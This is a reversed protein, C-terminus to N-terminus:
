EPLSGYRLVMGVVQARDLTELKYFINSWYKALTKQAISLKESIQLDTLGDAALHLIELERKTLQELRKEHVSISDPKTIESQAALRIYDLLEQISYGKELTFATVSQAITLMEPYATMAIIRTAPSVLNIKKVIRIGANRDGPWAVDLLLIDPQTAEVTKLVEFINGAQGVLEMDDASSILRELGIRAERYDDAIFVRIKNM